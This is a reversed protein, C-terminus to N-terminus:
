LRQNGYHFRTRRIGGHQNHHLVQLPGVGGCEFVQAKEDFPHLRGLNKEDTGEPHIKLWRPRVERVHGEDAELTQGSLLTQGENVAHGAALRKRVLHEIM